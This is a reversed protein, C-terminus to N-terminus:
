VHQASFDLAVDPASRYADEATPFNERALEAPPRRCKCYFNYAPDHRDGLVTQAWLLSKEWIGQFSVMAEAQSLRTARDERPLIELMVERLAGEDPTDVLDPSTWNGRVRM